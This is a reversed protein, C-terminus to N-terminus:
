FKLNETKVTAVVENLRIYSEIDDSQMKIHLIATSNTPTWDKMKM